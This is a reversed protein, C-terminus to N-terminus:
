RITVKGGLTVEVTRVVNGSAVEIDAGVM